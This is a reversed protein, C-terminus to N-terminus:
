GIQHLMTQIFVEIACHGGEAWQRRLVLAPATGQGTGDAVPPGWASALLVAFHDAHRSVGRSEVAEGLRDGISYEWLGEPRPTPVPTPNSTPTPMPTMTPTPLPTPTPTPTAALTPTPAATPVPTATPPPSPTPTRTATPPVTPAPTPTTRPVPTASASPPEAQLAAVTAAVQAGVTAPVDATPGPTATPAAPAAQTCALASAVGLCLVAIPLVRSLEVKMEWGIAPWGPPGGGGSHRLM